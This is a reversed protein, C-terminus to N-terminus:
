LAETNARAVIARYREAVPPDIMQGDVNVAGRGGAVAADYAEVIRHALTVEEETPTFEQRIVELQAPHIAFKGDYGMAAATRADARVTDLNRFEPCIADLAWVQAARAAVLMQFRAADLEHSGPTRKMGLNLALDEGGLCLGSVAPHEAIALAGWLARPTEITVVMSRQRFQKRDLIADLELPLDIKPVVLGIDREDTMVTADDDLMKFRPPNIRVFPTPVAHEPWDALADAVVARAAHKQSPPVSDELDFVVADVSLERAKAVM